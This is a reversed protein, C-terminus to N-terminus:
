KYVKYCERIKLGGKVFSILNEDQIFTLLARVLLCEAYCLEAHIEESVSITTQKSNNNLMGTLLKETMNNTNIKVVHFLQSKSLSVARGHQNSGPVERNLTQDRGGSWQAKM